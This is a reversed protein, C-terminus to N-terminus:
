RCFAPQSSPWSSNLRRSSGPTLSTSRMKPAVGDAQDLGALVRTILSRSVLPRAADHILVRTAGSSALAELGNRVSEQRTTGGAVPPELRLGATAADYAARDEHRIVVQLGSVGRHGLFAEIARRLVPKGNLPWYQKPLDPASGALAREGRGAAVILALTEAM